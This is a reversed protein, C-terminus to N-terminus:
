VVAKNSISQRNSWIVVRFEGHTTFVFIVNTAPVNTLIEPVYVPPIVVPADEYVVVWAAMKASKDDQVLTESKIQKGIPTEPKVPILRYGAKICDNETANYTIADKTAITKPWTAVPIIEAMALTAALVAAVLIPTRM